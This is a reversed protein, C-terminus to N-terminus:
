HEDNIYEQWEKLILKYGLGRITILSIPSSPDHEIKERIHRIHSMLTNEYGFYNDGCSTQCLTKTSVIM